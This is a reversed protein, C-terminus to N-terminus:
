GNTIIGPVQRSSGRAESLDTGVWPSVARSRERSTKSISAFVLNPTPTCNVPVEPFKPFAIPSIAIPLCFGIFAFSGSPEHNWEKSPTLLVQGRAPHPLTKVIRRITAWPQVCSRERNVLYVQLTLPMVNPFLFVMFSQPSASRFLLGIAQLPSLTPPPHYYFSRRNGRGMRCM